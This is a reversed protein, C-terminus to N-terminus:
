RTALDAIIQDFDTRLSAYKEITLRQQLYPIAASDDADGLALAASERIIPEDSNLSAVLTAFIKQKIAGYYSRGLIRVAEARVEIRITSGTLIRSVFSIAREGFLLIRPTM